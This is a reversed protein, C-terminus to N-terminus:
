LLTSCCPQLYDVAFGQLDNLLFINPTVRFGPQSNDLLFNNMSISKSNDVLFISSYCTLWEVEGCRQQWLLKLIPFINSCGIDATVSQYRFDVHRVSFSLNFCWIQSKPQERELVKNVMKLYQDENWHCALQRKWLSKNSVSM